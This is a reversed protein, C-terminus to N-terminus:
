GHRLVIVYAVEVYKFIIKGNIIESKQKDYEHDICFNM